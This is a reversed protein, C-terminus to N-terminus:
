CEAEETFKEAVIGVVRSVGRLVPWEIIPTQAMYLM